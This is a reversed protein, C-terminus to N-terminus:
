FSVHQVFQPVAGSFNQGYSYFFDKGCTLRQMMYISCTEKMGMNYEATHVM